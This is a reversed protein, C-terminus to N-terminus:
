VLFERVADMKRHITAGLDIRYMKMPAILNSCTWSLRETMRSIAGTGQEWATAVGLVCDVSTYQNKMVGRRAFPWFHKLLKETVGDVLVGKDTGDSNYPFPYSAVLNAIMWAERIQMSDELRDFSMLTGPWREMLAFAGLYPIGLTIKQVEVGGIEMTVFGRFSSQHLFDVLREENLWLPCHIPKICCGMSCPFGLGESMSGIFPLLLFTQERFGRGDFIRVISYPHECLVKPSGFLAEVTLDALPVGTFTSVRFIEGVGNSSIECRERLLREEIAQRIGGEPGEIKIKM